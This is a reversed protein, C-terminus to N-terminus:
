PFTSCPWLSHNQPTRARKRARSHAHRMPLYALPRPVGLLHRRTPLSRERGHAVQLRGRCSRSGICCDETGHRSGGTPLRAGVLEMVMWGDARGDFIRGVSVIMRRMDGIMRWMDGGDGGRPGRPRRTSRPRACCGAAHRRFGCHASCAPAGREWREAQRERGDDAVGHDPLVQVFVSM